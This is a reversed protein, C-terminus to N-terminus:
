PEIRIGDARDDPNFAMGMAILAFVPFLSNLVM